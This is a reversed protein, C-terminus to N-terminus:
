ANETQFQLAPTPNSSREPLSTEATEPNGAIGEKKEIGEKKAM